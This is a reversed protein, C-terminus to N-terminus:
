FGATPAKVKKTPRPFNKRVGNKFIVPKYEDPVSRHMVPSNRYREVHAQVARCEFSERASGLKARGERGERSESSEKRTGFGAGQLRPAPRELEGPM